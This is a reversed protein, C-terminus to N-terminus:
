CRTLLKKLRFPGSGSIEAMEALFLEATALADGLANHATHRPLHYAERLKDLRLEGPQHITGARRMRRLALQQTDIVPMLWDSGYLRQCAARIFGCEVRAHHAIMVKGTLASLLGPIIETVPAGTAVMDDTLRHIAVNSGTLEKKSHVVRHSATSLVIREGHVNVMGISIIHDAQIDLGTTEFDVAVYELERFDRNPDPFPTGLFEALPGAQCQRLLRRRRNDASLLHGFWM